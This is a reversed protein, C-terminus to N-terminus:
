SKKLYYYVKVTAVTMVLTIFADPISFLFNAIGKVVLNDIPSFLLASFEIILNILSAWAVLSINKKVLRKSESFFSGENEDDLVAVFPVMAYYILIYFGPIVFLLLGAFFLFSYYLNYLLFTPVFYKLEGVGGHNQKQILVVKSLIIFTVLTAAVTLVIALTSETVVGMSPFFTEINGLVVLAIFSSVYVNKNELIEASSSKMFSWFLRLGKM